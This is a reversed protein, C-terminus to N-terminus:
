PQWGERLRQAAEAWLERWDLGACTADLCCANCAEDALDGSEPAFEADRVFDDLIVGSNGDVSAAYECLRIAQDRITM